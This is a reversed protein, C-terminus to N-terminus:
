VVGLELVRVLANEIYLRRTDWWASSLGAEAISIEFLRNRSYVLSAIDRWNSLRDTSATSQM